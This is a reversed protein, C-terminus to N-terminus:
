NKEGCLSPISPYQIRRISQSKTKRAIPLTLVETNQFGGCIKLYYPPSLIQNISLCKGYGRLIAADPFDQPVRYPLNLIRDSFPSLSFSLC